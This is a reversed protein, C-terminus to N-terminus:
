SLHTLFTGMTDARLFSQHIKKKKRFVVMSDFFCVSHLHKAFYNENLSLLPEHYWGHMEDVKAKSFSIFTDESNLGGGHAPFYSSHTDECIYTGGDSLVPFLAQFTVKQQEMTHGGDDIVVDIKKNDVLFDNWFQPDAQDGIWIDFGHGEMRRCNEDVDVGIISANVGLYERWMQLGGGNQVGVELLTIEKERYGRLCEHYVDFYQLWKHVSNNSNNVFYELLPNGENDFLSAKNM